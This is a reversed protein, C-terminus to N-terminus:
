NKEKLWQEYESDFADGDQLDDILENWTSSTDEVLIENADGFNAQLYRAHFIEDESVSVEELISAVEKAIDEEGLEALCQALYLYALPDQSITDNYPLLIPRLYSVTAKCDGQERALIGLALYSEARYKPTTSTYELMKQAQELDGQALYVQSELYRIDSVLEDSLKKAQLMELTRLSEYYRNSRFYLDALFLEAEPSYFAKQAGVGFDSSLVHLAKDSLGMKEYASSVIMVIEPDDLRQRLEPVWGIEHTKAIRTTAGSRELALVRDRYLSWLMDIVDTRGSVEPYTRIFEAWLEIGDLQTGYESYVQGILYLAEAQAQGDNQEVLMRLTPVSRVWESSGFELMNAQISRLQYLETPASIWYERAKPLDSENLYADGLRLSLRQKLEEDDDESFINNLYLPELVEKSEAYFGDMQLLEGALLLSEPRSTLSALLRGTKARNPIGTAQSVFAMSEVVTAEDAGYMYARYLNERADSWNDTLLDVRAKSIYVMSPKIGGPTYQLQDFYYGAESAFGQALYGWGLAYASDGYERLKSQGMEKAELYNKRAEDIDNWEVSGDIGTPMGIDNTIDRPSMQFALAEGYLPRLKIEPEFIIGTDFRELLLEKTSDSDRRFYKQTITEEPRVWLELFGDIVNADLQLNEETLSVRLMWSEEGINIAAVSRIHERRVNDLMQELNVKCYEVRVEVLTEHIKPFTRARAFENVPIRIEPGEEQAWAFGWFLWLLFSIM